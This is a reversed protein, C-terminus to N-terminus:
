KDLASMVGDLLLADGGDAATGQKARARVRAVLEDGQVRAQTRPAARGRGTSLCVPGRM